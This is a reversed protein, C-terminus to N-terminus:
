DQKRDRFEEYWNQVVHIAAGADGDGLTEVVVFRQGDLTVDYQQGRGEFAPGDEFLPQAAGISFAPSTTVSVAMLTAGEVYFIEKGDGRWRPQSGGKTSVQRKAGGDPFPQVYVEYRGSENSQYALFKADPSLDPGVASFSTELFMVQQYGNGGEEARLYWLKGEGSGVLYKGDASWDFGWEGGPTALLSEAEGSGDAPQIFVDMSGDRVSSFSIKDGSPTWTPRFGDEPDFTLRRKLGRATEHVWIDTNDNELAQVVVQSGDPSLVPLEIEPQPAGITGLKRGARDRWILQQLGTEDGHLYVLTGDRSVSALSGSGSVPFPEGTARLTEVSFPLAWLANASEYVIHGTPSYVPRSGPALADQSGSELDLVVIETNAPAPGKAFLLGRKGGQNPLFHPFVQHLQQESEEPEFLPKATQGQASVEYLRHAGHGEMRASFVISSGDPSSTGGFLDPPALCIVSASGGHVSVKNLRTPGGSQFAVFDSNPFWFPLIRVADIATEIKRPQLRDLDWIWLESSQGANTGYVIHRGDPSIAMGRVQAGEVALAFRRLIKEAVPPPSFLPAFAFVLAILIAVAGVGYAIAQKRPQAREIQEASSRPGAAAPPTIASAEVPAVFRYGQRPITELFRPSEASDGLAQRIKQVATNLSKDFEVFEDETWLLEKLQERTVIEGPKELLAELVRFPQDQLKLRVGQKRLQRAASDMEFVGFRVLKPRDSM